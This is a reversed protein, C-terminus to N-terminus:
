GGVHRDTVRAGIQEALAAAKQLLIKASPQLPFRSIVDIVVQRGRAEPYSEFIEGAEIFAFYANLKAQLALLHTREDSWDWSDLLTLIVSGSSKDVGVADVVDLRDLSM